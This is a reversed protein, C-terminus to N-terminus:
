YGAVTGWDKLFFLFSAFSLLAYMERPLPGRSIRGIMKNAMVWKVTCLERRAKGRNMTQYEFSDTNPTEGNDETLSLDGNNPDEYIQGNPIKPPPSYSFSINRCSKRLNPLHFCEEKGCNGPWCSLRQQEIRLTTPESM